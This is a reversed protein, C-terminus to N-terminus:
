GIDETKTDKQKACMGRSYLCRRVWFSGKCDGECIGNEQEFPRQHALDAAQVRSTHSEAASDAKGIGQGNEDSFMVAPRPFLRVHGKNLGSAIGSRQKVAM